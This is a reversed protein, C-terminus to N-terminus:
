FRHLPSSLHLIPHFSVRHLCLLAEALGMPGESFLQDVDSGFTCAKISDDQGTSGKLSAASASPATLSKRCVALLSNEM